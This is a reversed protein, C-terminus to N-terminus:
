ESNGGRHVYIPYDNEFGVTDVLGETKLQVLCDLVKEGPTNLKETLKFLSTPKNNIVKLILHKLHQTEFFNGSINKLEEPDLRQGFVNEERALIDAKAMLWRVSFESFLDETAAMKDITSVGGLSEKSIPGLKKLEETFDRILEAFIKGESASVWALRFRQIPIKSKEIIRSVQEMREKTHENGDIYHCDGLHCGAVLVGDAGNHFARFVMYPDIRGSCMVKIVRVNSPYQYRSVGALDAGAYSCWNCLFAVILPEFDKESNKEQVVNKEM